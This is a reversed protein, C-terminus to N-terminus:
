EDLAVIRECWEKGHIECWQSGLRHAKDFNFKPDDGVDVEEWLEAREQGQDVSCDCSHTVLQDQINGFYRDSVLLDGNDGISALKSAMNVPKGAWVENQRDDRGKVPSMGLKRVLVTGQDIGIHADVEIDLKLEKVKEKFHKTSFTKFSVAAAIATYPRDHDFLAFVGDGRVDIYAPNFLDLIRVATETFLKYVSATSGAHKRASLITSNKMDVFVCIVDDVRYWRNPKKTSPIDETAPIKKRMEISSGEAYLELAKDIQEYVSPLFQTQEDTM